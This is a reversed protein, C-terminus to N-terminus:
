EMGEAMLREVDWRMRRACLRMYDCEPCVNPLWVPEIDSDEDTQLIEEAIARVGDEIETFDEDTFDITAKEGSRLCYITAAVRRDPHARHTLYSYIGMALDDRVDDEAISIRGSKYDIVELRGDPHEDLRDLRGLLDFEGMDSKLKKENFVTKM